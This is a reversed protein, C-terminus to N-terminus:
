IWTPTRQERWTHGTQKIDAQLDRRWMNRPKEENERKLAQCITSSTPKRVTHDLDMGMKEMKERRGSSCLKNNALARQEQHNKLIGRLCSVIFTKLTKITTKTRSWTEAGYLLVSKINSNFLRTATRTIFTPDWRM